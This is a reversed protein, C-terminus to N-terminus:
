QSPETQQDAAQAKWSDLTNPLPETGFVVSNEFRDVIKTLGYLQTGVQVLVFREASQNGTRAAEIFDNIKMMPKSPQPEFIQNLEDDTLPPRTWPQPLSM